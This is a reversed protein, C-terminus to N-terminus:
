PQKTCTTVVGVIRGAKEKFSTSAIVKTDSIKKVSTEDFSAVDTSPRFALDHWVMTDGNPGKSEALDYTGWDGYTVDVWRSTSADWTLMDHIVSRHPFWPLAETVSTEDIWRGDDSTKYTSIRQYPKPRRASQVSCSWTGLLYTMPSLDPKPIEPIPTSEVQSAAAVPFMLMAAAGFAVLIQRIM